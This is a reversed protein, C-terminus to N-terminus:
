AAAPRADPAAAPAEIEVWDPGCRLQAGVHEALLALAAGDLPPMGPTAAAPPADPCTGSAQVRLGAARGPLPQLHIAAPAGAPNEALLHIAGLLLCLVPQQPTRAAPLAPTGEAPLELALGRMALLPRSLRRALAATEALPEPTHPGQLDWHRLLRANDALSALHEEQQELQQALTDSGAAQAADGARRRLVVAGMRMITLLGALDHRLVPMARALIAHQVGLAMWARCPSPAPTLPPQHDTMAQSPM